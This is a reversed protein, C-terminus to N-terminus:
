IPLDTDPDAEPPTYSTRSARPPPASDSQRAPSYRAANRFRMTGGDFNLSVTGTPGNRQKAIIVEAENVKDPNSIEWDPEGRHYYSERHLMMVVDADQEIAGSERLDSMRPRHGERAEPSRNLQSLCIVPVELERALAKIGRSIASVEQERSNAEPHSMLQLYDVVVCKLTSNAHVRRAKARLELLTLGPSDDIFLPADALEGVTLGLRGREEEGLVNRRLRHSEVNARACLLRQALQHKNMELSFVLVPQKSNVAAHEAINLALSTKGMSPRAAVIIMEGPQLGDTMEDLEYFGTALGTFDRGKRSDIQEMIQELLRHLSEADHRTRSQTIEFLRSEVGDLLHHVPGDHHYADHIARGSAEILKRLISKDRVIQAYHEVSASSPVADVVHDILYDLGGVEELVGKDELRQKLQVIDISQRQDYLELEAEFIAAHAPKYFDEPSLLQIVEATARWDHVLSGLVACEAELAHPPLKDFLKGLEM